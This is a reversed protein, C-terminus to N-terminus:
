KGLFAFGYKKYVEKAKDSSLFKMFEKAADVNKSAKIVAAPYVIPSHSDSPAQAAIKVISSAKADTEYVVGAEANGSEVWTLVEKVDKAYVAKPKVQELIELKTFIEEAYQGAPVSKPEGLAIAKVKDGTVDKFDAIGAADKPTILVVKNELLIMRSDKVILDKRAIADMQKAAASLFIDVEAGQEIQQQLSGSSGFNYVINVNTNESIYLKKVEEMTEKLSAAASITLTVTAATPSPASTKSANDMKQCGVTFIIFIITILLTLTKNRLSMKTGGKSHVIDRKM